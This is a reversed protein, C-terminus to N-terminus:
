QLIPVQFTLSAWLSEWVAGRTEVVVARAPERLMVSDVLYTWGPQVAFSAIGDGDTELLTTEVNNDADRAFVTIRNAAFPAGKYFLQVSVLESPDATYPNTLAVLEIEMGRPADVGDGAGVALLAKVYRSYAERIPTRPLQRESHQDLIEEHGKEAAFDAFKEYEDYVVTSTSSVYLLTLLGEDKASTALAPRDGLRGTIPVAGTDDWREARLTSSDNWILPRGAFKEGNLLDAALTAAQSMRWSEPELWVEHAAAPGCGLALLGFMFLRSVPM